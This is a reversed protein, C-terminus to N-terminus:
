GIQFDLESTVNRSSQTNRSASETAFLRLGCSPSKMKKAASRTPRSRPKALLTQRTWRLSIMRFILQSFPQLCPFSGPLLSPSYTSQSGDFPASSPAFATPNRDLPESPIRNWVPVVVDVEMKDEKPATTAPDSSVPSVDMADNDMVNSSKSPKGSSIEEALRLSEQRAREHEEMVKQQRLMRDQEEKQQKQQVRIQDAQEKVQREREVRVAEELMLKRMHERKKEEEEEAAKFRAQSEAIRLQAEEQDKKHQEQKANRDIEAKERDDMEQVLSLKEAAMFDMFKTDTPKMILRMLGNSGASLGLTDLTTNRLERNSSIERNLFSLIPQIYNSTKPDEASTYTTSRSREFHQLVDWLSTRPAFSEVVREGTPLQLGVQV